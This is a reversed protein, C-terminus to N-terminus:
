TGKKSNVLSITIGYLRTKYTYVNQNSPHALWEYRPPDINM